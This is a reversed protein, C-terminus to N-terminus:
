RGATNNITLLCPVITLLISTGCHRYYIGAVSYIRASLKDEMATACARAVGAWARAGRRINMRRGFGSYRQHRIAPLYRLLITHLSWRTHTPLDWGHTRPPTTVAVRLAARTLTYVEGGVDALTTPARADSRHACPVFSYFFLFDWQRLIHYTNLHLGFRVLAFGRVFVLLCCCYPSYLASGFASTRARLLARSFHLRKRKEVLLGLCRM